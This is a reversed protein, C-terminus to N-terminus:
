EVEVRIPSAWALVHEPEFSNGECVRLMLSATGDLPPIVADAEFAHGAAFRQSWLPHAFDGDRVLNVNAGQGRDEFAIESVSVHLHLQHPPDAPVALVAGPAAGDLLADIWLGNRRAGFCRRQRLADKFAAHPSSNEVTVDGAPGREEVWVGALGATGPQATHIDGGSVVGITLHNLLLKHWFEREFEGHQSSIEIVPQALPDTQLLSAGGFLGLHHPMGVADEADLKAFIRPLTNVASDTYRYCCRSDFCNRHGAVERREPGGFRAPIDNTWEFGMFAMFGPTDFLGVLRRGLEYEWDTLPNALREDHDTIAVVDLGAVDRAFFLAADREGAGDPSCRTHCHLDAFELRYTRGDRELTRRAPLDPSLEQRAPLPPGAPPELPLKAPAGADAAARPEHLVRTAAELRGSATSNLQYAVRVALPDGAVAEGTLGIADRADESVLKPGSWGDRDLVLYWLQRGVLASPSSLPGSSQGTVFMWLRGSGDLLVRPDSIARLAALTVTGRRAEIPVRLGPAADGSPNEAPPWVPPLLVSGDAKLQEVFALQKRGGRNTAWSLWLGGDRDPLVSPEIDMAYPAGSVNVPPSWRGDAGLVAQYIEYDLQGPAPRYADWVCHVAGRADRVVEPRFAEGEFSIAVAPGAGRCAFIRLADDADTASFVTVDGCIRVHDAWHLGQALCASAIPAAPAGAPVTLSRVAVGEAAIQLWAVRVNGDPLVDVDPLCGDGLRWLEGTSVRALMASGSSAPADRDATWCCWDGALRPLKDIDPSRSLIVEDAPAPAQAAIAHLPLALLGAVLAARATRVAGDCKTRTFVTM